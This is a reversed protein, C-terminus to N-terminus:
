VESWLREYGSRKAGRRVQREENGIDNKDIQIRCNYKQQLNKITAGKAGIILGVCSAPVNFPIHKSSPPISYGAPVFLSPCVRLAYM